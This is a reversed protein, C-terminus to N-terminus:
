YKNDTCGHNEMKHKGFKVLKLWILCRDNNTYQCLTKQLCQM